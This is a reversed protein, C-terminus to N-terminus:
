FPASVGLLESSSLDCLLQHREDTHGQSYSSNELKQSPGDPMRLHVSANEPNMGGNLLQIGGFTIALAAAHPSLISPDSMDAEEVSSEVRFYLKGSARGFTILGDLGAAHKTVVGEAEQFPEKIQQRSQAHLNARDTLM